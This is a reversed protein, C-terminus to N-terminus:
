ANMNRRRNQLSREPRKVIPLEQVKHVLVLPPWDNWIVHWVVVCQEHLYTGPQNQVANYCRLTVHLDCKKTLSAYGHRHKVHQV